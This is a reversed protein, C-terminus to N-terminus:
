RIQPEGVRLSGDERCAVYEGFDPLLPLLWGFCGFLLFLHIYFLSTHILCWSPNHRSSSSSKNNSSVTSPSIYVPSSPSAAISSLTTTTPPPPAPAPKRHYILHSKKDTSFTPLHLSDILRHIYGSLQLTIEM